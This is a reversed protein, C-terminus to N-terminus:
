VKGDQQRLCACARGIDQCDHCSYTDAQEQQKQERSEREFNIQPMFGLKGTTNRKIGLQHTGLITAVYRSSLQGPWARKRTKMAMEKGHAKSPPKENKLGTFCTSYHRCGSDRYCCSTWNRPYRCRSALLFLGSDPTLVQDPAGSTRRSLGSCWISSPRRLKVSYAISSKAKHTPVRHPVEGVSHGTRLSVWMEKLETTCGRQVMLAVVDVASADGLSQNCLYTRSSLVPHMFGSYVGTFFNGPAYRHRLIYRHQGYGATRYSLSAVLFYFPPCGEMLSFWGGYGRSSGRCLRSM